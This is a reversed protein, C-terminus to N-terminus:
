LTYGNMIKASNSKLLNSFACIFHYQLIPYLQYFGNGTYYTRALVGRLCYSHIILKEGVHIVLCIYVFLLNLM